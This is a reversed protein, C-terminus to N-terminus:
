KVRFVDLGMTKVRTERHYKIYPGKFNEEDFSVRSFLPKWFKSAQSFSFQPPFGSIQPLLNTKPTSNNYDVAPKKIQSPPFRINKFCANINNTSEWWGGILKVGAGFNQFVNNERTDMSSSVREAVRTLKAFINKTSCM